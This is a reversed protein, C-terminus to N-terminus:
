ATSGPWPRSGGPAGTPDTTPSTSRAAWRTRRISGGGPRDAPEPRRDRDPRGRGTRLRAPGLLRALLLAVPGAARRRPALGVLHGAPPHRQRDAHRVLRRRRGPRPAALPEAADLAAGAAHAIEYGTSRIKEWGDTTLVPREGGDPATEFVRRGSEDWLPVPTGRLGSMQNGVTGAVFVAVGGRTRELYERLYHPYDSSLLRNGSGLTDPHNHWNVLTAITEGTAAARFEAGVVRTNGTVPDRLDRQMVFRDYAASPDDIENNIAPLRCDNTTKLLGSALDQCAVHTTTATTLAAPRLADLAQEISAYLRERLQTTYRRNHGAM